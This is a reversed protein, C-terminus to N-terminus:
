FEKSIVSGVVGQSVKIDHSLYRASTKILLMWFKRYRKNKLRIGGLIIELSQRYWCANFRIYSYISRSIFSQYYKLSSIGGDAAIPINFEDCYKASKYCSNSTAWM